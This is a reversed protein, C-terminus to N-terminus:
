LQQSRSSLEMMERSVLINRSLPHSKGLQFLFHSNVRNGQQMSKELINIGEFRCVIGCFFFLCSFPSISALIIQPLILPISSFRIHHSHCCQFFCAGKGKLSLFHRTQTSERHMDGVIHFSLETESNSGQRSM